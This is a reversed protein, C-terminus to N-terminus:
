GAPRCPGRAGAAGAGAGDLKRLSGAVDWGDPPLTSPTVPIDAASPGAPFCILNRGHLDLRNPTFPDDDTDCESSLYGFAINLV